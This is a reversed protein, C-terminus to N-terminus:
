SEMNETYKGLLRWPVWETKQNWYQLNTSVTDVPITLVNTIIGALTGNEFPTKGEKRNQLM